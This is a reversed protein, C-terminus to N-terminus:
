FPSSHNFKVWIIMTDVVTPLFGKSYISYGDYDVFSRYHLVQICDWFRCFSRQINGLFVMWYWLLRLGSWYRHLPQITRHLGVLGELDLVWFIDMCPVSMCFCSTLFCRSFCAFKAKSYLIFCPLVVRGLSCVPWLLCERGVVFSFVRCMCM